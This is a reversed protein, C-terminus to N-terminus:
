KKDWYIRGMFVLITSFLYSRLTFVEKFCLWGCPPDCRLRPIHLLFSGPCVDRPVRILSQYIHVRSQRIVSHPHTPIQVYHICLWATKCIFGKTRCESPSPSWCLKSAWRLVVICEKVFSVYTLHLINSLTMHEMDYLKVLSLLACIYNAFTCMYTCRSM